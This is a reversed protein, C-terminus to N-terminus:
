CPCLVGLPRRCLSGELTLDSPRSAPTPGPAACRLPRRLPGLSRLRERRTEPTEECERRSLCW